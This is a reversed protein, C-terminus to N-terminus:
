HMRARLRWIRREIGSLWRTMRDVPQPRRKLWLQDIVPYGANRCDSLSLYHAVLSKRTLAPDHIEEAGHLLDAHWLVLDGAKADVVHPAMARADLERQMHTAWQPLENPIAHKTGDSFYFPPLRHSAPYLRLPGSGPRVDELAIWCAVLKDPTTPTMYLSDAHYEQASSRELNLSNCLVPQDGLFSRVLEILREDTLLARVDNSTLYLDNLKIRHVRREETAQSMRMRENRDLDDITIERPREQWLRDVVANIQEVRDNSFFRPLLVWGDRQWRELIETMEM